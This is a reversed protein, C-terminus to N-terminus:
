EAASCPNPTDFACAGSLVIEYHSSAVSMFNPTPGDFGEIFKVVMGVQMHSGVSHLVGIHSITSFTFSKYREKVVPNENQIM